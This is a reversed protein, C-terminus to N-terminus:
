RDRRMVEAAIDRMRLLMGRGSEAEFELRQALDCVGITVTEQGTPIRRVFTEMPDIVSAHGRDLDLRQLELTGSELGDALARLTKVALQITKGDIM